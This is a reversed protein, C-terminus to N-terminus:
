NSILKLTERIAQELSLAPNNQFVRDLVQKIERDKYGLNKLAATTDNMIERAPESSATKQAIEPPQELSTIKDTLELMVKRATKEGLGKIRKLASIDQKNIFELLTGATTETLIKLALRPGIGSVSILLLFFDRDFKNEFGFLLAADEKHHFYTYLKVAAGTDPVQNYTRLPIFIKYGIGNNELIIFSPSKAIIKGKIYEYM